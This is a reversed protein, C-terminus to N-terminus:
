ETLDGFSHPGLGHARLRRNYEDSIRRLHDEGYATSIFPTSRFLRNRQNESLGSYRKKWVNKWESLLFGEINNMLSSPAPLNMTKPLPTLPSLSLPRGDEGLNINPLFGSLWANARLLRALLPGNVVPRLTALEVATYFNRDSVELHDVTLFHNICFFKRSNFLFLKKFLVLLTRCIWLRGEATVVVFDIDSGKRAVGKSLEGSVFVGRVFPFMGVLRGFVVAIRWYTRARAENRVREGVAGEDTSKLQYYSASKRIVSKLRAKKACREIEEPSTSNSPLFRYIEAATLPYRFIDFYLLTRLVDAELTSTPSAPANGPGRRSNM